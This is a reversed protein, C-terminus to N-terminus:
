NIHLSPRNEQAILHTAALKDSFLPIVNIDEKKAEYTLEAKIDQIISYDNKTFIPQGPEPCWVILEAAEPKFLGIDRARALRWLASHHRSLINKKNSKPNITSFCAALAPSLYDVQFSMEGTATASIKQGFYQDLKPEQAYVNERVSSVFNEEEAASPIVHEEGSIERPDGSHALTSFTMSAQELLSQIDNAGFERWQTLRMGDFAPIWQQPDQLQVVSKQFDDCAIQALKFLIKALDGGLLIKSIRPNATVRAGRVGNELSGIVAVCFREDCGPIPEVLVGAAFGKGEQLEPFKLESM